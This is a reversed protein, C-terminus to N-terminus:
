GGEEPKKDKGFLLKSWFEKRKEKREEKREEQIAEQTLRDAYMQLSEGEQRPYERAMERLDAPTLDQVRTQFQAIALSDDSEEFLIPMDDLFDPCSLYALTMEDLGGFAGGRYEKLGDWTQVRRMFSGWITLATNSAGGRSLTRFHVSPVENGVWTGVVLKPVYGLFWGDSQNQTTGTKGALAGSLGYTSRLRYATGSNVVGALLFSTQDASKRSMVREGEDEKPREFSVIVEGDGTEIRDLYHLRPPRRGGNALTAYVQVMEYLSADVSGLAISPEPTIEHEVGMRQTMRAVSSLGARVAIAVAVTNISKSLGGKMSYAGDYNGDSNRPSYGNYQGYVERAAPTYECPLMGNELATAYVVPKMTSGVQRTARVHDYQVFQQDLGGVWARIIGTSPEAALLGTGLLTFYYGISDLTSLTTDVAAGSRWDYITMARPKALEKRIVSDTRGAEALARYPESNKLQSELADAWPLDKRDEWDEYFAKQIDAMNEAVAQEAALQMGADITTRIRLGDTYLNYASGDPKKFDKLLEDVERRIQERFYTALGQNRNELQYDIVLPLASLSDYQEAPLYDYRTMQRLVVNRRELSKEPFRRPNYSTNAKLMGVLVAAEEVKLKAVDKNFFRRAAVKVGFANDGFPVSNLYHVLLEDKSYTKELRRATIMERLKNIPTSLFLYEKRGYINKVLQQSITSGGGASEDGLLVNKFLVRLFARPDIGQHEFFRADETAILGNILFPSMQELTLNVRNELYFKGLQEGGEAFIASAQKNRINAIESKGPLPGLAGTYVLLFLALLCGIGALVLLGAGYAILRVTSQRGAWARGRDVFGPRPLSSLRSRIQNLKVRIMEGNFIDM